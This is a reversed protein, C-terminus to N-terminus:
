RLPVNAFRLTITGQDEHEFWAIAVSKPDGPGLRYVRAPMHLMGDASVSRGGTVYMPEWDSDASQIAVSASERAVDSKFYAHAEATYSGRPGLGVAEVSRLEVGKRKDSKLLAGHADKRTPLNDLDDFVVERRGHRLRLPFTLTLRELTTGCDASDARLAVNITRRYTGQSVGMTNLRARRTPSSFTHGQADRAEVIRPSSFQRLAVSPAFDLEIKLSYLPLAPAGFSKTSSVSEIRARIPGSSATPFPTSGEIAPPAARLKVTGARNPAGVAALQTASLVKELAVFYSVNRLDITASNTRLGQPVHFRGGLARLLQEVPAKKMSLSVAGISAFDLEDGDRPEDVPVRPSRKSQLSRITRRVEADDHEAATALLGARDLEAAHSRLSTRAAERMTFDESTLDDIWKQFRTKLDEAGNTAEEALAPAQSKWLVTGAGCVLAIWWSAILASALGRAAAPRAYKSHVTRARLQMM